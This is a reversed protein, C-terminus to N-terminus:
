SPETHISPRGSAIVEAVRALLERASFPKRLLEVTGTVLELQALNEGPYGSVYLVPLNPYRQRVWEVLSAGTEGPMIVDTLLLDPPGSQNILASRAEAASGAELVAYGNLVLIRRASRRVVDDDEVLLITGQGPLPPITLERVPPPVDAAAVPLWLRFRAGEGPASEVTIGGGCRRVFALVGVLGLGTGKGPGKTTYFPQFLHRLAERDLGPGTDAVEVVVYRGPPASLFSSDLPRELSAEWVALTISGQGRQADRANAVLNLLAHELEVADLRASAESELELSLLCGEGVLRQMLPLTTRLLGAIGVVRPDAGRPRSFALLRSTLAAGRVAAARISEIDQRLRHEAPLGQLAFESSALVTTLLNNFDHAVGGALQGVVEMKQAQRLQEELQTRETVDRCNLVLGEVAPETTLNAVSYEFRRWEGSAHLFRAATTATGGPALLLEDLVAAVGPQDEPHLLTTLPQGAVSEPPRGLLRFVPASAFRVRRAADVVLILDTSHRVLAEFRRTGEEETTRRVVRTADLVLLLDRVAMVINLLILAVLVIRLVSLNSQMALILLVLSGCAAVLLPLPSFPILSRPDPPEAVIPDTAHWEGAWIVAVNVAVGIPLSWNVGAYGSAWLTQFIVDTLLSATLAYILTRWARRSPIRQGRVLALNAAVLGAMALVPFTTAILQEFGSWDSRLQRHALVLIASVLLLAGIDLLRRSRRTELDPTRPMLLFAAIQLPYALAYFLDAISYRPQQGLVIAIYALTSSGLAYVVFSGALLRLSQRLAPPLATRRAALLLSAASALQLPIFALFTFYLGFAGWERWSQTVESWAFVIALAVLSLRIPRSM